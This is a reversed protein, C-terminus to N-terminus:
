PGFDSYAFLKHILKMNFYRAILYKYSFFYQFVTPRNFVLSIISFCFTFNIKIFLLPSFLLRSSHFIYVIIICFTYLRRNM